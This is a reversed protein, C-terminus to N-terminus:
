KAAQSGLNSALFKEIETLLRIRTASASLWHDESDLTILQHPKGAAKLANAMMQSQSFPVVSDNSGHILLVPARFNGAFRAPSKQDVRPDDRTGISERWYYVADSEDGGMKEGWALMEGLDAVGAVSVACAYLDPTFAAGALAAYGGYSAGVICVRKPDVIQQDILAKVGDTIDDQMRLGWQGRGALRHEDGLGTSGRFQPRLVAYGRSALFQSWWDFDARDRSEPGGHPLVVLPLNKEATGPPITGPPITLYGFLSYGDRAKYDFHRVPGQPQDVLAPYQEGVIDAKKATYDILYYVAPASAGDVEVIVKKNDASRSIITSNRGAFLKDLSAYRKEVSPDLWRYHRETGSFRVGVPRGDYTDLVVGEADLSPEDFLRRAPSGDLPLAWLTARPSGNHSVVAVATDNEILGALFSDGGNEVELIRKWSAGDKALVSFRRFEANWESRVMPVGRADALWEATFPTGSDLLKSKGDLTNIEFANLQYGSDRRKGGLRTGIETGQAQPAFDMSSMVLTHPRDVHRRVLQSGGLVRKNGETLLIRLAGSSVDGALWRLLELRSPWRRRTSTLTASVAFLLRDNDAWDIDRVKFGPEVSFNRLTKRTALELVTVQTSKGDNIVWALREGAPNIRVMSVAELSGYAEVSPAAGAPLALWAAAMVVFSAV